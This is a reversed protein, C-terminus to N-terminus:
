FPGYNVTLHPITQLARIYIQQRQPKDSDDPRGSVIATFYRIRRIDDNPFLRRCLGDFDLWKYPTGKVAGYYFNFGDIYVHTTM